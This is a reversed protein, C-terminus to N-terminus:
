GMNRGPQLMAVRLVEERKSGYIFIRISTYAHCALPLGNSPDSCREPIQTRERALDPEVNPVREKCGLFALGIGGSFREFAKASSAREFDDSRMVAIRPPSNLGHTKLVGDVNQVHKLLLGGFPNGRRRPLDVQNFLPQCLGFAIISFPLVLIFLLVL